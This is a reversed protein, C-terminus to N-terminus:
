QPRVDVAATKDPAAPKRLLWVYSPMLYPACRLVVRAALHKTGGPPVMYDVAFRKPEGLLRATYDIREFHRVLRRLGWYTFHREEYYRGRGLARLYLHALPRPVVSLLPLRYHPEILSLRNGAAFYCIGGPRLIRHIEDMLRGANAVHEYLHSCLVVDACADAFPTHAADGVMFALNPRHFHSQAFRIATRDIDLGVVRRFYAALHDAIIGGSAAADLLTLSDLEDGLHDRLVALTTVAKRTRGDIDLVADPKRVSYDVSSM